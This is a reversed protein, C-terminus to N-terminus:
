SVIGAPKKETQPWLFYGFIFGLLLLMFKSGTTLDYKATHCNTRNNVCDIKHGDSNYCIIETLISTSKLEINECILDKSKESISKGAFYLAITIALLFILGIIKDRYKFVINRNFFLKATTIGWIWVIFMYKPSSKLVVSSFTPLPNPLVLIVDVLILIAFIIITIRKIRKISENELKKNLSQAGRHIFEKSRQYYSMMYPRLFRENVM